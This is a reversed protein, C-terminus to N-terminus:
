KIQELQEKTLAKKRVLSRGGDIFSHKFEMLGMWIGDGLMGKEVLGKEQM